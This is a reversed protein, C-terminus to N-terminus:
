SEYLKGGGKGENPFEETVRTANTMAYVEELFPNTKPTGVVISNERIKM